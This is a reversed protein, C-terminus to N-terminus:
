EDPMVMWLAGYIIINPGPVFLFLIRAAWVPIGFRHALGACVGAVWRDSRPRVLENTSM